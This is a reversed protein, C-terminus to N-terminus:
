LVAEKLIYGEKEAEELFHNITSFPDNLYGVGKFVVPPLYGTFAIDAQFLDDRFQREKQMVKALAVAARAVDRVLGKYKPMLSNCLEASYKIRLKDVTRKQIDIARKLVLKDHNIKTLETRLSGADPYKEKEGDLLAMAEVTLADNKGFNDAKSIQHLIDASKDELTQLDLKMEELRNSAKKWVEFQELSIETKTM